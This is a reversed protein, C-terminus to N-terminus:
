SLSRQVIDGVDRSLDPREAIRHLAREAMARRDPEMTKWTGFATLLRAALQPNSRDLQMVIEALFDYGAGDRRHFQTPNNLAFTGILSRVRNPNNMSFAPHEMLGQVRPLTDSEPIAAQLAFWKDLVLPEDGYREGFNQIVQERVSGPLLTLTAFAALRDTMNTATEFQQLALKEGAEPDSAAM